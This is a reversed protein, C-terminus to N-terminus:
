PSQQTGHAGRVSEARALRTHLKERHRELVKTEEVRAPAYPHSLWADLATLAMKPFGCEELLEATRLYTWATEVGLEIGHLHTALERAVDGRLHELPTGTLTWGDVTAVPVPLPDGLVVVDDVPTRKWFAVKPGYGALRTSM